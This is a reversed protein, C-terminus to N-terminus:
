RVKKRLVTVGGREGVGSCECQVTYIDGGQDRSQAARTMDARAQSNWICCESSRYSVDFWSAMARHCWVHSM